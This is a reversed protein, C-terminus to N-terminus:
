KSTSGFFNDNNPDILTKVKYQNLLTPYFGELSWGRLISVIEDFSLIDEDAWTIIMEVIGTIMMDIVIEAHKDESQIFM